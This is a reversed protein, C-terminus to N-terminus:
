LGRIYPRLMEWFTMPTAIQLNIKKLITDAQKPLKKEITLFIDCQTAAAEVLLKRDKQSISGFLPNCMISAMSAAEQEPPKESLCMDTHELVERAYRSRHFDNAADIEALSAPSVVWDFHARDDFLFIDRLSELILAGDPRMIVQPAKGLAYDEVRPLDDEGFVYGGCEEIAQFTGTDLYVRYALSGGREAMGLFNAEKQFTHELSSTSEAFGFARM